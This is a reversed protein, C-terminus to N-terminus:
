RVHKLNNLISKLMDIDNQIDSIEHDDTVYKEATERFGKLAVILRLVAGRTGTNGVLDIAANLQTCKGEDAMLEAIENEITMKDFEKNVDYPM